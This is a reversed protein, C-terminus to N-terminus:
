DMLKVYILVCGNRPNFTIGAQAPVVDTGPVIDNHAPVPTRFFATFDGTFIYRFIKRANVIRLSFFDQAFFVRILKAGGAGPGPIHEVPVPRRNIMM